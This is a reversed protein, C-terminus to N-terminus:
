AKPEFQIVQYGYKEVEKATWFSLDRTKLVYAAVAEFQRGTYKKSKPDWEELILIDGPNAEFDAVRLDFKKRGSIVDEFYDPWAKKRIIAM